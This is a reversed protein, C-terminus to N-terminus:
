DLDHSETLQMFTVFPRKEDFMESLIRREGFYTSKKVSIKGALKFLHYRHRYMQETAQRITQEPKAEVYATPQIASKDTAHRALLFNMFRYPLRRLELIIMIVLYPLIIWLQVGITIYTFSLLFLLVIFSLSIYLSSKIAKRFPLHLSLMLQLLRGGDLPYLPLLNFLAISANGIAFFRAQEWTLLGAIHLLATISLMLGNMLPGSITIWFEERANERGPPDLEVVGGFPLITLRTISWGYYMAAAVHGLEHMFVIFFLTLLQAFQGTIVAGSFLVWFFFHFHIPFPLVKTLPSWM